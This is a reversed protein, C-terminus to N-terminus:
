GGEKNEELVDKISAKIATLDFPKTLYDSAGLRMAEKATQLDSHGTLIVVPLKKSIKRIRSLIEIGGMGPMKIDLFVISPPEKRIKALGGKGSTATLVRYGEGTMIKKFIRCADKQDDIIMITKKDGM